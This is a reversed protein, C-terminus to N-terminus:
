IPLHFSRGQEPLSVCIVVIDLKITGADDLSLISKMECKYSCLAASTLIRIAICVALAVRQQCVRPRAQLLCILPKNFAPHTPAHCLCQM